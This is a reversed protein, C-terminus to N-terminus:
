NKQASARKELSIKGKQKERKKKKGNEFVFFFFDINDNDKNEKHHRNYVLELFLIFRKLKKQLLACFFFFILNFNM